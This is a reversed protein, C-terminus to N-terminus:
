RRDNLRAGAGRTASFIENRLPDMVVAHEVTGRRRVAISVAYHPYGHLFNTTGDLPDIVWEFEAGEHRGSEEALLAHDPYASRIVDIIAAEAQRDVDSVFDNRGKQQVSVRDLRDANRLIIGSARRAAKTATNVLPHM